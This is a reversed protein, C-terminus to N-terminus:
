VQSVSLLKTNKKRLDFETSSNSKEDVMTKTLSTLVLGM